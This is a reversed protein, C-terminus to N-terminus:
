RVINHQAKTRQLITCLKNGMEVLSIPKLMVGDMGLKICQAQTTKDTDATLAIILPRREPSINKQIRVAVEYGDMEPMWLDLLVLKYMSGPQALTALCQRGSEVVTAQCGLNELLQKTVTRNILNDDAALVKLGKLVERYGTDKQPLVMSPSPLQLRVVFTAGFGFGSSNNEIWLHGNMIQIIKECRVLTLNSTTNQQAPVVNESQLFKQFLRARANDTYEMDTAKIETRLFVFGDRFSPRWALKQSHWKFDEETDLRVAVVVTGRKASKIVDGILNLTIQLLRKEDGIVHQPIESSLDLVFRLGKSRAMPNAFNAVERFISTLEFIQLDLDLSGDDLMDNIITSLLESSKAVTEVVAQQESDLNSDQLLSSLAKISHLPIRMEHNMVVLFENRALMATEAEQRVVQLAKNQEVLQDQIRYSEELIAAHSLAVAVQDAVTEVIELERPGWERENSRRLGLVMVAYATAMSQPTGGKFHSHRLVPLRIAVMSGMVAAEHSSAQGLISDLPVDVAKTSSQIIRILEDDASVTVPVQLVRRKLEHTLEMLSKQVNPMWITCNELQFTKGLEELMVALITHKDISRRIEQTLLRTHREVEEQKRIFNVERDLEEAKNRLFLERVKVHLLLPIIHVLSIATACSVLATLVKLITQILMVRFTHPRYTWIAVFHTLGCLVIFAGFQAIVWWFPLIESNSIFYLLEIPISFYALAILFDSGIQFRMLYELDWGNDDCDCSSLKPHSEPLNIAILVILLSAILFLVAFRVNPMTIAM